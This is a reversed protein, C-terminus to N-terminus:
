HCSVYIIIILITFMVMTVSFSVPMDVASIEPENILEVHDIVTLLSVNFCVIFHTCHTLLSM